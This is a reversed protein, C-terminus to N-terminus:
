QGQGNSSGAPVLAGSITKAVVNDATQRARIDDALSGAATKSAQPLSDYEKLAADLRGANIDAELRAVIAEPTDGKVDGVPRVSVLSRAGAMLRAVVGEDGSPAKAAAIMRDAKGAIEKNLDAQTPVGEAAFKRLAVVDENDGAVAAYTDLEATFPVGRDIASKLAAAAIAGAVRPQSAEKKVAASLEDVQSKLSAVQGALSDRASAAAATTDDLKKEIESLKDALKGSDAGANATQASAMEDIRGQIDDLRSSLKAIEGSGAGGGASVDSQLTKIASEAAGLRAALDGTDAGGKSGNSASLELNGLREEIASIAGPVQQLGSLDPQRQPIVGAWQLGAAGALAIVGGIIAPILGGGRRKEAAPVAAPREEGPEEIAARAEGDESTGTTEGDPVTEKEISSAIGEEAAGPGTHGAEGTAESQAPAAQVETEPKTEEAELNITVPQMATRSHRKGSGKAM